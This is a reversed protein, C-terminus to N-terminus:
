KLNIQIYILDSSFKNKFKQFNTLILSAVYLLVLLLICYYYLFVLGHGYMHKSIFILINYILQIIQVKSIFYLKIMLWKYLVQNEEVNYLEFKNYILYKYMVFLFNLFMKSGSVVILILFVVIGVHLLVLRVM